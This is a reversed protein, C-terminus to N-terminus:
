EGASAEVLRAHQEERPWAESAELFGLLFIGGHIGIDWRGIVHGIVHGSVHGSAHVSVHRSVHIWQALGREGIEGSGGYRRVRRAAAATRADSQDTMLIYKRTRRRVPGDHSYVPEGTGGCVGPPLPPAHTSRRQSRRSRSPSRLRQSQSQSQSHRPFQIIAVLHAVGPDSGCARLAAARDGAPRALHRRALHRRPPGPQTVRLSTRRCVHEVQLLVPVRDTDGNSCRQM